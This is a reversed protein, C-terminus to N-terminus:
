KKFKKNFIGPINDSKRKLLKKLKNNSIPGSVPISGKQVQIMTYKDDVTKVHGSSLSSNTGTSSNPKQKPPLMGQNPGRPLSIMKQYKEVMEDDDITGNLLKDTALRSQESDIISHYHKEVIKNFGGFSRRGPLAAHLDMEEVICVLEDVTGSSVEMASNTNNSIGNLCNNSKEETSWTNMNQLIKIQEREKAQMQEGEEKRKMFKMSMVSKSLGIKEPPKRGSNGDSPSGIATTVNNSDISGRNNAKTPTTTSALATASSKTVSNKTINNSNHGHTPKNSHNQKFDKKSRNQQGNNKNNGPKATGPKWFSM